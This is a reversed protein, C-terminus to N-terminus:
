HNSHCLAGGAQCIRLKLKPEWDALDLSTLHIAQVDMRGDMQELWFGLCSEQAWRGIVRWKWDVIRTIKIEYIESLHMYKEGDGCEEVGGTLSDNTM